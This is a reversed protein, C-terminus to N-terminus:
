PQRTVASLQQSLMQKESPTLSSELQSFAEQLLQVDQQSFANQGQFHTALWTRDQSSVNERLLQSIEAGAASSDSNQLDALLSSWEAPTVGSMVQQGIKQLHVLDAQSWGGLTSSSAGSALQPNLSTKKSGSPSQTTQNSLGSLAAATSGRNTGGLAPAAFQSSSPLTKSETLLKQSLSSWLSKFHTTLFDPQNANADHIVTATALVSFLSVVTILTFDILKKVPVCGKQAGTDVISSWGLSFCFTVQLFFRM